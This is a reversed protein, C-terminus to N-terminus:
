WLVILKVENPILELKFNEESNDDSLVIGFKIYCVSSGAESGAGCHCVALGALSNDDDKNTINNNNNYLLITDGLNQNSVAVIEHKLDLGDYVSNTLLRCKDLTQEQKHHPIESFRSWQFSSTNSNSKRQQQEEEVPWVPKSM